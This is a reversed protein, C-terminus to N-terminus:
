QLKIENQQVQKFKESQKDMFSKFSDQLNKDLEQIALQKDQLKGQLSEIEIGVLKVIYNTFEDPIATPDNYASLDTILTYYHVLATTITSPAIYIKNDLRMCEPESVSPSFYTNLLHDKFKGPTIPKDTFGYNSGDSCEVFRVSDSRELFNPLNTSNITISKVSNGLFTASTPTISGSVTEFKELGLVGLKTQVDRQARNIMATLRPYPFDPHGLIDPYDTEIQNILNLLTTSM